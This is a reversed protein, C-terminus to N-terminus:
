GPTKNWVAALCMRDRQANLAAIPDIPTERNDCSAPSLTLRALDPIVHFVMLGVAEGLFGIPDDPSLERVRDALGPWRVLIQDLRTMPGRKTRCSM